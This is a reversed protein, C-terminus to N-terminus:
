VRSNECFLVFADVSLLLDFRGVYICVKRVVGRSRAMMRPAAMKKKKRRQTTMSQLVAHEAVKASEVLTEQKM